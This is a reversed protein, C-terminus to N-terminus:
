GPPARRTCGRPSARAARTARGGRARGAGCRSSLRAGGLWVAAVAAAPVFLPPPPPPPPRQPRGPAALWRLRRARGRAMEGSRGCGRAIERLRAPERLGLGGGRCSPSSRGRPRGRGLRPRRRRRRWRRQRRRGRRGRTPAARPPRSRRTQRTRTRGPRARSGGWARAPCPAGSCSGFGLLGFRPGLGLGSRLGFGFGFGLGLGLGLELGLRSCTRWIMLSPRVM